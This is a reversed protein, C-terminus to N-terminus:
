SKGKSIYMAFSLLDPFCYDTLESKSYLDKNEGIYVTNMGLRKGFIMDSRSDGVMISRKFSIEKFDKKAQVGMGVSPKRSFHNQSHLYPSVYIKDVKGGAKEIQNVMNAHVSELQETTMLGKGIGQQNSVIFIRGFIKTLVAIAEVAGDIFRFEDVSKVYDDPLRQNIVGDRDLFLSWTKDIALHMSTLKLM